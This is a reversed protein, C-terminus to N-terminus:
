AALRSHLAATDQTTAQLPSEKVAEELIFESAREAVMVIPVNTNGSVLTPMISADVVRLGQVGHVRLREDVVALPDGAQGMRATGTPHFITAGYERCFHLIEDDTGVDRGPRFEAKMLSKMPETDAIRRAFRVSAIATRRDLDTSLYNPQMSPAELPDKSKIRVYGRSEPRLQCVSYTCGSFDHVQGGALDASLTGFHFQIDPTPSEDPLARCFIAGQNIGIALPGGRFLAWQLGM